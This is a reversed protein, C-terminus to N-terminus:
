KGLLPLNYNVIDKFGLGGNNKPLCLNKWAVWHIKRAEGKYGWWFKLILAEIDKCLSKPLLFCGMTPMAQLVAKILIERGGQSLLKEKWGQIKHWIWERIYGFRQKKARGVFSPVSLYSKTHTTALVGISTKIQDRMAQDTNSSFFLQTKGRNIQQGSTAEYLQLIELITTCEQQSAKCFLMSDGAFFLHTVKPGDRCLSVRHLTGSDQKQQLLSHLGEACLLFLYPSLPDGQRLGRKPTFHGHPAGNVLISFSISRICSSILSIWKNDFGLKEIMKELFVWEVKDYAKSMDLKLTMYSSKGKRKNRLHHLTEFAVLINDSILRDSM